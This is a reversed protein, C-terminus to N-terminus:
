PQRLWLLPNVPAGQHRIEFYLGSEVQGGTAGVSAVTDGAAVIDGVQRLLAQNYAYVSLYKQGHDVILINGFGSLWGAYVVRGDAVSKVPTGEPARMVLGRWLGGDPRQAGFRGLVDTPRLPYPLGKSLGAFGASPETRARSPAPSQAAQRTQERELRAREARLQAVEQEERQDRERQQERIQQQERAQERQVREREAKERALRAQEAKRQEAERRARERQEAIAVDLKGILDGLRKDNRELASAQGRQQKLEAEIQALVRERQAKQEQLQGSQQRTQEVLQALTQQNQEITKELEILKKLSQDIARVARAQSRSVYGLYRLERAIDQPDDGSLLAAWPSLGSAYQGRLQEALEERRVELLAQQELQQDHAKQLQQETAQRRQQLEDLKRNIDSIATESVRLQETADRRDQQSRDIDKEIQEIRERLQERQKRAHEQQQVLGSQAQAGVACLGLLLSALARRM